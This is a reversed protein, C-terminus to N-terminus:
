AAEVHRGWSGAIARVREPEEFQADFIREYLAQEGDRDLRAGGALRSLAEEVSSVVGSGEDFQSKTRWLLDEPLLDACAKRLIWKEIPADRGGAGRWLKYEAPISQAFAILDRDLFPTRAELGVSMSMRDVRQLQVGHMGRLEGDLADALAAPSELTKHWRYGAFLEDAGEGTLVTKVHERAVRSVIHTPIASRVSDIDPTELHRLVTPLADAIEEARFVHEHHDSGIHEAVRRAAELDAAGAVGVAFTKLRHPAHRAAIAAILSSDLGGSLFSGIEVDSVMWKAVARELMERLRAALQEPDTGGTGHAAPPLSWWPRSAGAERLVSGPPVPRVDLGLGDFAKVESAFAVGEGMRAAYLPKIGLPDRAAMVGGNRRLAFAWMGDLEGIWRGDGGTEDLRLITESDSRTTFRGAGVRDRLEAHNYIEGNAVLAREGAEMPQRGDEPGIISLRAHGFFSRGDGIEAIELADPGRHAIRRTMREALEESGCNWLAVIGCM